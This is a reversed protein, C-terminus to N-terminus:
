QRQGLARREGARDEVLLAGSGLVFLRRGAHDLMGGLVLHLGFNRGLLLFLQHVLLLGTDAVLGSGGHAFLAFGGLAGRGFGFIALLASGHLHLDLSEVAGLNGPRRAVDLEVIGYETDLRAGIDQVADDRPLELVPAARGARSALAGIDGAGALLVAPLLAAAGGAVAIAACRDEDAAALGVARAQALELLREVLFDAREAELHRERRPGLVAQHDDVAQLQLVGLGLRELAHEVLGAPVALDQHDIAIRHVVA